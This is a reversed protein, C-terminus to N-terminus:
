RCKNKKDMYLPERSSIIMSKKSYDKVSAVIILSIIFFTFNFYESPENALSFCFWVLFAAKRWITDILTNKSLIVIGILIIAALALYGYNWLFRIWANAVNSIFEKEGLLNNKFFINELLELESTRSIYSYNSKLSKEIVIMVISYIGAASLPLFSFVKIPTMKGDFLRIALLGIAILYGMTSTAIFINFLIFVIKAVKHKENEAYFLLYMLVFNLYLQYQGPEWSFGNFRKINLGFFNYTTAWRIFVNFHSEYKAIFPNGYADIRSHYLYSLGLGPAIYEFIVYCAFYFVILVFLVCYITRFINNNGEYYLAATYFILIFRLFVILTTITDNDTFFTSLVFVATVALPIYFCSKKMATKSWIAIVTGATLLLMGIQVYSNIESFLYMYVSYSSMIFYFVLFYLWISKLDIKIEKNM